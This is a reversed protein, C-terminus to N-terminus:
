GELTNSFIGDYSYLVHNYGKVQVTDEYMYGKTDKVFDNTLYLDNSNVHYTVLFKPSSRMRVTTTTFTVSVNRRM